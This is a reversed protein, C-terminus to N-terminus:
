RFFYKFSLNKSKNAIINKVTIREVETFGFNWITIGYLLSSIAVVLLLRLIGESFILVPVTSILLVFLFSVGCRYVVENLFLRVSLGSTKKAFFVTLVGTFVSYFIFVIYMIYAPSDFSFLVFTLILPFLHFISQYIKYQKINGVASISSEITLFLQEVLNRILTLRCFVVAFEPVDKLWLNFIYPMEVMVPIYFFMLMFFSVRSGMISAKLMLKRDGAGESKDIVPNLAKLLVNAFVSLQGSIQVAVGQAANVITGFFMNIVINQGYNSVMSTSSGLFSWSAFSSMEKFLNKNYFKVFNIRVEEYKLHCYIRKIILLLFTLSAMLLGYSVLKDFNTYSIYFAISLKLIAELIGLLAVFLMNEHANIVADYPVSIVIFFTSIVLFQFVLRASEMRNPDIKLISDFLFVGAIELIIVVAIAILLHLLVSVNFVQRQKLFNRDGQFYSMFRLTASAMASNLFTLMAIAGGVVNYIGFDGVGLASLILRTTYLSIFVTIAM